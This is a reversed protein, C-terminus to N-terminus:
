QAKRIKKTKHPKELEHELDTEQRMEGNDKKSKQKLKPEIEVHTKSKKKNEIETSCNMQHTGDDVKEKYKRKKEKVVKETSKRKKEEKVDKLKADQSKPTDPSFIESKRGMIHNVADRGFESVSRDKAIKKRHAIRINHTTAEITSSVVPSPINQNLSSLLKEFADVNELWSNQTNVVHGVGLVNQKNKVLIAQTNGSSNLGLGEGEKWGLKSLLAHGKSKQLNLKKNNPDNGIRQKFKPESLGM